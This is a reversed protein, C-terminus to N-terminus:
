LLYLYEPHEAFWRVAYSCTPHAKLGASRIQEVAAALLKDAIGQGRLAPDVYTHNIEAVGNATPFTVEAIRNGSPDNAYICDQEHQFEM